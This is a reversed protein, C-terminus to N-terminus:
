SGLDVRPTVNGRSGKCPLQREETVMTVAADGVKLSPHQIQLVGKRNEYAGPGAPDHGLISQRNSSTIVFTGILRPCSLFVYLVLQCKKVHFISFSKKFHQYRVNTLTHFCANYFLPLRVSPCCPPM